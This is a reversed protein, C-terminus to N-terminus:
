AKLVVALAAVILAFGLFVGLVLRVLQRNSSPRLSPVADPGGRLDRVEARLNALEALLPAVVLELESDTLPTRPQATVVELQPATAANPEQTAIADPAPIEPAVAPAAQADSAVGPASKRASRPKEGVPEMARAASWPVPPAVEGEPEVPAADIRGRRWGWRAPAAEEVVAVAATQGAAREQARRELEAREARLAALEAELDTVAERTLLSVDSPVPLTSRGQLADVD